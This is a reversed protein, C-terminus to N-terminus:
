TALGSLYPQAARLAPGCEPVEASLVADYRTLGTWLRVATVVGHVPAESYRDALAPGAASICTGVQQIIAQPAALQRLRDAFQAQAPEVVLLNVLMLFLDRIMAARMGAATDGRDSM